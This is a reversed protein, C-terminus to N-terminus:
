RGTREETNTTGTVRLGCVFVLYCGALIAIWFEISDDTKQLDISVKGRFIRRTDVVVLDVNCRYDPVSGPNKLIPRKLKIYYELVVQHLPPTTVCLVDRGEGGRKWSCV